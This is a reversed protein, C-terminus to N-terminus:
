TEWKFQATSKAESAKQAVQRAAAVFKIQEELEAM